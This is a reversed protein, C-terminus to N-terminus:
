VSPAPPVTPAAVPTTPAAPIPAPNPPAAAPAAASLPQDKLWAPIIRASELANMVKTVMGAIAVAIGGVAAAQDFQAGIIPVVIAVAACAGLLVQVLTRLTRKTSDTM